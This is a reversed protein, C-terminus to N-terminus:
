YTLKLLCQKNNKKDLAPTALKERLIYTKGHCFSIIGFMIDYM